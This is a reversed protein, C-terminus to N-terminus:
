SSQCYQLKLCLSHMYEFLLPILHGKEDEQSDSSITSSSGDTEAKGDYGLYSYDVFLEKVEKQDTSTENSLTCDKPSLSSVDPRSM